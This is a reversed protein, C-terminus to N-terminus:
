LSQIGQLLLKPQRIDSRWGRPHEAVTGTRKEEIMKTYIM